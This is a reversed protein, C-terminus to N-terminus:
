GDQATTTVGDQDKGMHKFKLVCHPETILMDFTIKGMSERLQNRLNNWVSHVSCSESADCSNPRAVCDNLYIEGIIAEVVELLSIKSPEESLIFGGKPGQKIEIIRARALDQAIKALFKPPIECHEAIEKRSSLVGKGKLSLYLICRIAYEGARTLRM